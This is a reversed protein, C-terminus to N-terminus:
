NCVTTKALIFSVPISQFFPMLDISYFCGSVRSRVIVTLPPHTSVFGHQGPHDSRFLRPIGRRPQFFSPSCVRTSYLKPPCQPCQSSASSISLLLPPAQVNFLREM